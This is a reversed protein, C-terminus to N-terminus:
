KLCCYLISRSFPLVIPSIKTANMKKDLQEKPIKWHPDYSRIARRKELAEIATVSM